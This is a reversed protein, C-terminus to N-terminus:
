GTLRYRAFPEWRTGNEDHRHELLTLEDLTVEATYGALLDLAPDDADTPSGDIDITVHPHFARKEEREFVDTWCARYIAEVPARPEVRLFRVPSSPDFTEVPGLTLRCPACRSAAADVVAMAGAVEEDRLNIPPVVTIHPDIKGLQRDGLAQRLADIEVSAPAPVLLAVAFRRRAM